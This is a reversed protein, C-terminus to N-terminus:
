STFCGKPIKLAQGDATLTFTVMDINKDVFLTYGKFNPLEHIEICKAQLETFSRASQLYLLVVRFFGRRDCPLDATNISALQHVEGAERNMNVDLTTDKTKQCITKDRNKTVDRKGRPRSKQNQTKRKIAPKANNQNGNSIVKRRNKNLQASKPKATKKKKNIGEWSDVHEKNMCEGNQTVCGDCFCSLLRTVLNGNAVPKIAHKKRTDPVAKVEIRDQTKTYSM